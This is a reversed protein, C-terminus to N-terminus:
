LRDIVNSLITATKRLSDEAEEADVWLRLEGLKSDVPSYIRQDFKQGYHAVFNGRERIEALKTLDDETLLGSEVSSRRITGWKARIHQIDVEINSPPPSPSKRSISLYLPM